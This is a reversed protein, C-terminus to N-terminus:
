YLWSIRCILHDPCLMRAMEEGAFKTVGYVTLPQSSGLRGPASIAVLRVRHRFCAAVVNATGVANLRYALEPETECRDVATMAACHIEADPNSAALFRDFGAADTINCEPLNAICLEGDSFDRPLLRGLMDQDRTILLKM